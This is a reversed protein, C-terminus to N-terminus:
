IGQDPGVTREITGCGFVVDEQYFVVTQGPTIAMQRRDFEVHARGEAIPTVTALDEEHKYRIRARLRAPAKLNPM